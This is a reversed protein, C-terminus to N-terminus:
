DSFKIIYKPKLGAKFAKYADAVNNYTTEKRPYGKRQRTELTGLIVRRDHKSLLGQKKPKLVYNTIKSLLVIDSSDIDNVFTNEYSAYVKVFSRFVKKTNKNRTNM